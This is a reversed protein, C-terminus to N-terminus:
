SYPTSFTIVTMICQYDYKTAENGSNRDIHPLFTIPILIAGGTQKFKSLFFYKIFKIYNYSTKSFKERVRM